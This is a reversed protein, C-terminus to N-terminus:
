ASCTPCAHWPNPMYYNVKLTYHQMQLTSSIDRCVAYDQATLSLQQQAAELSSELKQQSQQQLQITERVKAQSGSLKNMEAQCDQAMSTVKSLEPLVPELKQLKDRMQDGVTELEQKQATVAQLEAQLATVRRQMWIAEADAADASSQMHILHNSCQDYHLQLLESNNEAQDKSDKASALDKAKQVNGQIFCVVADSVLVQSSYMKCQHLDAGDYCRLQTVISKWANCIATLM